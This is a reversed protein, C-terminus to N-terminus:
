LEIREVVTAAPGAVFRVDSVVARVCEALSGPLDTDLINLYSIAGDREVALEVRVFTGSLGQKALSRVCRALKARVLRARLECLRQYAAGSTRTAEESGAEFRVSTAKAGVVAWGARRFPADGQSTEVLHRGRGVRVSTTGTGLEVGDLRVRRDAAAVLELRATTTRVSAADDWPVRYPTALALEVLAAEDLRSPQAMPEGTRVAVTEGAAIKQTRAGERVTVLGHRCSVRTEDARHEVRFQTGHVEVLQAGSRVLFRQGPARPAVELDVVGDISLEIVASDLREIRLNGRPSLTLASGEGLQVDLSGAASSLVAGAVIPREFLDQSDGDIQVAGRARTVLAVLPQAAAHDAASALSSPDASPRPALPAARPSSRESAALEPQRRAPDGDRALLFPAVVGISAAAFAAVGFTLWTRRVRRRAEEFIRLEGTSGAPSLEWRVKARISDWPLEPAPAQAMALMAGRAAQIRRQALRCRECSEAHATMRALEDPPVREALADAWREPAVHRM